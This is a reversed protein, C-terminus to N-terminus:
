EDDRGEALSRVDILKGDDTCVEDWTARRTLPDAPILRIYGGAVLSELSDPYIGRDQRFQLILDRLVALDHRLVTARVHRFEDRSSVMMVVLIAAIGIALGLAVERCRM